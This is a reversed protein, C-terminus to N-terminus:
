IANMPMILSASPLSPQWDMAVVKLLSLVREAVVRDPYGAVPPFSIDGVWKGNDDIASIRHPETVFQM